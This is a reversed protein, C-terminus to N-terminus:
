RIGTDAFFDVRAFRGRPVRVNAPRPMHQIGISTRVAYRGPALAIRYRGDARTVVSGTKRSGRWFTLRAHPAPGDCPTGVYCVPTLPGMTLTGMLGSPAALGVATLLAALAPM